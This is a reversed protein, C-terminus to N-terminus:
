GFLEEQPQKLRMKAQTEKVADAMAQISRARKELSDVTQDLDDPDTAWWYGKGSGAIPYGAVRLTHVMDRVAVDGRSGLMYDEAFEQGTKKQGSLNWLDTIFRPVIARLRPRLAEIHEALEEFGPLNM